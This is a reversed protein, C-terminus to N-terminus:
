YGYGSGTGASGSGAASSSVATVASGSPDLVFWEAGFQDLAQGGTQGAQSDGAFYYLPHGAYSLQKSGQSGTIVGVSAASAGGAAQPQGTVVVAPWYTLCSGSCASAPGSDKAFLYLTRGQADVLIRGLPTDRTTVVTSSPSTSVTSGTAQPSGLTLGLVVALASVGAGAAVYVPLRKRTIM